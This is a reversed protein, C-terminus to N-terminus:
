KKMKDDVFQKFAKGGAVEIEKFNPAEAEIRAYWKQVNNYKSVDFGM